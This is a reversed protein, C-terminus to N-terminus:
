GKPRGTSGSTYIIYSMHLSTLGPVVPNAGSTLFTDNPDIFKVDVNKHDESLTNMESFTARGVADALVISPHCDELIAVLRDTPYSPDLPVYAGGAKLVALVGVIMAISRDVCIAVLTDPRVGLGILHHALRNSRENLQRYTLSQDMFVLATAEPTREAQKEFLHHICLHEPYEKDTANWTELLQEREAPGPLDVKSMMRDIDSTMARLVAELYGVQREMTTRDFLATSYALVGVIESESEQLHLEMDFKSIKYGVEYEEVRLGPLDWESEENSQWAFLVQFLPTHSMSRLPQVIDVVQEFPLDQHAQAEITCKKVRELLKRATVDGTLDIRLALTNVFFGILSEIQHHNRNATPAGIVIDDQGSMRSIVASWATLVTMFMTVGNDQCLARLAATLQSDFRIPLNDGRTSQQSPRPRDTPLNILVPADNLDMRWYSTHAELVDGSMHQRQWSAYDPYQIGLPPLPDREGRCFQRYLLSLENCMVGMSWGDSVIHHQTLLFVHEDKDLQIMTARILPGQTLDFPANAEETNMQRLQTEADPVGRLDKWTIPIGSDSPLIHMRPQGNVAIFATRLAEHRAFLSDLAYQIAEQNLNGHLRLAMPM